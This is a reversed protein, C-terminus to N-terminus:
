FPIDDDLDGDLIEEATKKAMEAAAAKVEELPVGTGKSYAAMAKEELKAVTLRMPPPKQPPPLADGPSSFNKRPPWDVAKFLPDVVPNGGRIGDAVDLTCEPFRAQGYRVYTGTLKDIAHRGGWSLSRYTMVQGRVDDSVGVCTISTSPVWGPKLTKAPEFGDEIRGIREDVKVVHGEDNKGLLVEGVYLTTMLLVVRMGDPGTKIAEGDLTWAGRACKLLGGEICHSAYNAWANNTQDNM